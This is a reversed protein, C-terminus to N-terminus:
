NLKYRDWIMKYEIENTNKDIEESLIKFDNNKYFTVAKINKKYARLMLHNRNRKIETLLSTGVGKDQYDSAVFVGEINNNNVGIFGVIKEEIIYVYVESCPLIEKVYDYNSEWYEKSIFNHAKFNESKWITMVVDIDQQSFKRIM